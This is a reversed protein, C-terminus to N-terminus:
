MLQGALIRPPARNLEQGLGTLADLERIASETQTMSDAVADVQSSIFDPNQNNVSMESLALIKNEIRDLEVEVFESNRQANRYNEIRM